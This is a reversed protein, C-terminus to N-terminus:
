DAEIVAEKKKPINNQFYDNIDLATRLMVFPWPEGMDDPRDSIVWSVRSTADCIEDISVGDSGAKIICHLAINAIKQTYVHKYIQGQEFDKTGKPMNMCAVIYDGFVTELDLGTQDAFSKIAGESIKWNYEKYCLKIM